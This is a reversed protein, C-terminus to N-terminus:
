STTDNVFKKIFNIRINKKFYELFLNKNKVKKLFFNAKRTLLYDYINM